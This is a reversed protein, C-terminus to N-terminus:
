GLKAPTAPTRLAGLSAAFGRRVRIAGGIMGLGFIMLAWSSPEPTPPAAPAALQTVDVLDIVTAPGQGGGFIGSLQISTIRGLSSTFGIFQATDDAQIDFSEGTNLQVTVTVPSPGYSGFDFGFAIAAPTSIHLFDRAGQPSQASLFTNPYPAGVRSPDLAFLPQNSAFHDTGVTVTGGPFQYYGTATTLATLSSFDTHTDGPFAADFAAQSNYFTLAAVAPAGSFLVTASAILPVLMATMRTM